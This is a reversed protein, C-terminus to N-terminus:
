DMEKRIYKAREFDEDINQFNNKSITKLTNVHIDVMLCQIKKLDIQDMLKMSSGLRLKSLLMLGEEESMLKANKLIGYARYLDDEFQISRTKLVERAKREQEIISTIVAKISAIIDDDSIGLTKQNSIQYIYGDGSSNEGYLGRVSVGISTAQDLLKNLLGIKALAPLHLMVSVRMASGVNTPCSTIYGYKDNKAFGVKNEFEDSFDSLKKYCKDINFGPAFSQIRFHDEENIMTVLSHDENVLIAGNQNPVFEKSIIHQEVLSLKTIDDIDKMKLIKYKSGKFKDEVFKIVGDLEKKDMTNPFKSNVMSRAFRVRSSIVVDSDKSIERFWM